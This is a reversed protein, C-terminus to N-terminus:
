AEIHMYTIMAKASEPDTTFLIGSKVQPAGSSTQRVIPHRERMAAAFAPFGDFGQGRIEKLSRHLWVGRSAPAIRKSIALLVHGMTYRPNVEVIPKLRVM